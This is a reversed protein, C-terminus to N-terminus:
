SIFVTRVRVGFIKKTCTDYTWTSNLNPETRSVMRGLKDYYLQTVQAKADTQTVLEGFGNYLYSWNGM